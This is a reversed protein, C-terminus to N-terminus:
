LIRSLMVAGTEKVREWAGRRQFEELRIEKAYRLDELFAREMAAGFQPDLVVLNSENNFAMSRNDFNMSGITGWTGDAVITKAHMMTPQYEYVKVGGRLLEEYHARGAYWTSKVDTEPGVTLVRVDVGRKAARIMGRRFDDDPVFYSNAIWLRRRSGAITLAIFREAPTSGTTPVAFLLGATMPGQAPRFRARPFFLDGTILEGTAEAWGSAFAAQLYMVSPGEFRVNADRWEDKRRGGGLWYDAIGFGGTYGVRGDVVVVRVHSRDTANHLSYWHLKRLLAVEVGAQKLSDTWDGVLHQSGFADLLLLVRVGARAREILHAKVSDAVAGPLSYYMQMTITHRAAALDAYLRPYVDGNLVMEVQNGPELVIGTFLEITHAFLSDGIPPPGKGDGEAIVRSVPTGRTLSLVGILAFLVLVVLGAVIGVRKPRNM